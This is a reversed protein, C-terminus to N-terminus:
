ATGRRRKAAETVIGYAERRFAHALQPLGNADAEAANAEACAARWLPDCTTATREGAALERRWVNLAPAKM